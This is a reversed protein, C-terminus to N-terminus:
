DSPTRGGKRRKGLPDVELAPLRLSLLADPPEVEEPIRGVGIRAFLAGVVPSATAVAFPVSLALGGAIALAYVIDDPAKMAIIAIFAFGILTQPWLKAWAVLWPVVHSERMQSNWAYGRGLIFLRFLFVTHALAMVPSLLFSFLTEGAVNLLFCTAGGYAQRSSRRLLVDLATAIKPAFIMLLMIAFLATAVAPRVETAQEYSTRPLRVALVGVALLAMWAPSGLYMLIAFVLQFRSVPKLGPLGLLWFYQMNGQCWRLERRIFEMLTPPNEEWSIGEAPIVRVEYGARRMLAAEIQDHSLVHGGLPGGQPLVPLRCHAAFPKLRLIANHGWYPGCDGQWWAAGLTHSRMGLRMGFQFLRAFASVSPLGVVLTQLIGLTPNAQMIRVLRLVGAAPMFSDADLVVALEHCESWRDCFDRINGAKYATNDPRRRYTVPIVDRWTGVFPSFSAVETALIEPDNTDSLIYVHFLSGVNAIRLGDLLPQLNRIIQSPNENRICVLITTFATIPEDGRIHAAMPNVTAVPDRSFCMILFGISANWFGITSWPLTAAFLALFAIASASRPPVATAALWLIAGITAGAIVAVLSRRRALSAAGNLAPVVPPTQRDLM